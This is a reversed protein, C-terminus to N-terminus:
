SLLSDNAKGEHAEGDREMRKKFQPPPKPPRPTKPAPKLGHLVNKNPRLLYELRKEYENIFRKTTMALKNKRFSPFSYPRNAFQLKGIEYDRERRIERLLQYRKRRERNMKKFLAM